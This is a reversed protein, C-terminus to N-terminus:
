TKAEPRAIDNHRGEPQTGMVVVGQPRIAAEANPKHTRTITFLSSM